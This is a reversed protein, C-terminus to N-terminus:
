WYIKSSSELNRFVLFNCFSINYHELLNWPFKQGPDIKRYPAVDSHGLINEPTIKHKKILKKLLKILSYTLSSGFIDNKELPSYDLEIGISFSNIDFNGQWYSEGAHWARNKESVLNYIEGNRSIVYHSSVKNKKSSLYKISESISKLATYHIVILNIKNSKRQNFNPSKFKHILKM